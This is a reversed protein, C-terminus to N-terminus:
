PHFATLRYGVIAAPHAAADVTLTVAGAFEGRAAMEVPAGQEVPLLVRRLVTKGEGNTLTLELAPTAVPLDATNRLGFSLNFTDPSVRVFGSSDIVIAELLRYPEVQCGLPQCLAALAPKLAPASAALWARNHIVVQAALALALLGFAGGLALRVGPRQWMARQRAERVFSPEVMVTEGAEAHHAEPPHPEARAAKARASSSSSKRSSGSSRSRRSPRPAPAAPSEPLEDAAAAEVVIEDVPLEKAATEGEAQEPRTVPASPAFPVPPVPAAPADHMEGPVSPMFRPAEQAPLSAPVSLKFSPAPASTSAAPAPEAAHGSAAEGADAAEGVAEGNNLYVGIGSLLFDVGGPPTEVPPKLGQEPEHAESQADGRTGTEQAQIGSHRFPPKAAGDDAEAKGAAQARLVAPAPVAEPMPAAPMAPADAQLRQQESIQDFLARFQTMEEATARRSDPTQGAAPRRPRASAAPASSVAPTAAVPPPPPPVPASAPASKPAYGKLADLAQLNKRADFM